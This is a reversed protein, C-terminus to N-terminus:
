NDKLVSIQLQYFTTFNSPNDVKNIYYDEIDDPNYETDFGKLTAWKQINLGRVMIKSGNSKFKNIIKEVQQPTMNSKNKNSLQITTQKSDKFNRVSLVKTELSQM